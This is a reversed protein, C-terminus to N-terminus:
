RCIGSRGLLVPFTRFITKIISTPAPADSVAPPSTPAACAFEVHLLAAPKGVALVLWIWTHTVL